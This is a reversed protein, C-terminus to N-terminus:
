KDLTVLRFLFTVIQGRTCKGDPNFTTATDGTTIGNEAAWIMASYYFAKENVDTFPHEQTGSAPKGAFRHLFTVVQGRTCEDEPSFETATTGTTIGNEVAWIVSNYFFDTPYVDVFPMREDQFLAFIEVPCKPMLLRFTHEDIQEVRIDLEYEAYYYLEMAALYHGEDPVAEITIWEYGVSEAPDATLTGAGITYTYIPYKIPDAPPDFLIYPIMQREAQTQVQSGYWCHIPLNPSNLFHSNGTMVTDRGEFVLEV